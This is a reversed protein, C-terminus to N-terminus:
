HVSRAFTRGRLLMAAQPYEEALAALAETLAAHLEDDAAYGPYVSVDEFEFDDRVAFGALMPARQFIEAITETLVIQPTKM